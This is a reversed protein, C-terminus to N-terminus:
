DRATTPRGNSACWTARASARISPSGFHKNSTPRGGEPVGHHAPAGVGQRRSRLPVSQRRPWAASVNDARSWAGLLHDADPRDLCLRSPSSQIGPQRAVGLSGQYHTPPSPYHGTMEAGPRMRAVWM